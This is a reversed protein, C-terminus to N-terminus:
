NNKKLDNMIKTATTRQCGIINAINKHTLHFPISVQSSTFVGFHKILILLLQIFRKKTNKHTLIMLMEKNKNLDKYHFYNKTYQNDKIKKLYQKKDLTLLVTTKLATFQYYYNIEKSKKEALLFKNTLFDSGYVLSDCLVEGNTFIRSKQLLGELLFIGLLEKTNKKFILLDDTELVRIKFPINYTELNMLWTIM